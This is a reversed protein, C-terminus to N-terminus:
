KEEIEKAKVICIRASYYGAFYQSKIGFFGFYFRYPSIKNEKQPRIQTCTASNPYVYTLVKAMEEDWNLVHKQTTM